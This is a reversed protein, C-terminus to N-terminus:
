LEQLLQEIQDDKGLAELREEMNDAALEGKAQSLAEAHRVKNKMRDFTAAKGGEVMAMRADSAKALAKARRHQAILVDSKAM